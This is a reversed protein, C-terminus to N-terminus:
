RPPVEAAFVTWGFPATSATVTTGYRERREVTFGREHCLAAVRDPDFLVLSHHEDIRRYRGHDDEHFLTIGRDLRTGSESETSTATIFWGDGERNVTRHGEPGARGPGSLDFLFLGGPVLAARVREVLASLAHWGAREDAAYNAIEGTATVAAAEPLEVDHVSGQCFTADPATRGALAVMDPSLDIGLVPHGADTLHRALIGSGCGLDVVLGGGLGAGSLHDAVTAAADAAIDGFGEHHVAALEGGYFAAEAV